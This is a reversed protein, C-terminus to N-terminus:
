DRHDHVLCQSSRKGPVNRHRHAPTSRADGRIPRHNGRPQRPRCTRDRKQTFTSGTTPRHIGESLIAPTSASTGSRRTSEWFTYRSKVSSLSHATPNPRRPKRRREGRKPFSPASRTAITAAIARHAAAIARHNGITARDLATMLNESTAHRGTKLNEGTAHPTMPLSVTPPTTLSESRAGMGQHKVRRTAPIRKRAGRQQVRHPTSTALDTRAIGPNEQLYKQWIQERQNDVEEPQLTGSPLPETSPSQDM